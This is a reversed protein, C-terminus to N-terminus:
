HVFCAKHDFLEIIQFVMGSLIIHLASVVAVVEAGVVNPNTDFWVYKLVSTRVGLEAKSEVAESGFNLQEIGCPLDVDVIDLRSINLEVYGGDLQRVLSLALNHDEAINSVVFALPPQVQVEEASCFFLYFLLFYSGDNTSESNVM